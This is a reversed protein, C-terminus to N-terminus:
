RKRVPKKYVPRAERVMSTGINASKRDNATSNKVAATNHKSIISAKRVFRVQENRLDQNTLLEYEKQKEVLRHAYVAPFYNNSQIELRIMTENSPARRNAMLNSLETQHIQIAEAFDIQKMDLIHLYEKLFFGFSRMQDYVDNKLYDEMQFKLQLLRLNLRDADSLGARSIKRALALGANAEARQAKSLKEPIIYAEAIEKGTPKRDKKNNM